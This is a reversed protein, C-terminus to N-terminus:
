ELSLLSQACLLYWRKLLLIRMQLMMLHRQIALYNVWSLCFCSSGLHPNLVRVRLLLNRFTQGNAVLYLLFVRMWFKLYFGSEITGMLLSLQAKTQLWCRLGNPNQVKPFNVPLFIDPYKVTLQLQLSFRPQVDQLVWPLFLIMPQLDQLLKCLVKLDLYFQDLDFFKEFYQLRRSLSILGELRLLKNAVIQLPHHPRSQPTM